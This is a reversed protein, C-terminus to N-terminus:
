VTCQQSNRVAAVTFLTCIYPVASFSFLFFGSFLPPPSHTHIAISRSYRKRRLIRQGSKNHIHYEDKRKSSAPHSQTSITIHSENRITPPAYMVHNLGIGARFMGSTVLIVAVIRWDQFAGGTVVALTTQNKPPHRTSRCPYISISIQMAVPPARAVM